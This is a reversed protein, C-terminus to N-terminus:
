LYIDWSSLCTLHSLLLSCLPPFSIWHHPYIFYFISCIFYVPIFFFVNGTALLHVVDRPGRQTARCDDWTYFSHYYINTFNKIFLFFVLCLGAESRDFWHSRHCNRPRNRHNFRGRRVLLSNINPQIQVSIFWTNRTWTYWDKISLMCPWLSSNGTKIQLSVMKSIQM